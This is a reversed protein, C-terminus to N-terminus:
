PNARKSFATVVKTSKILFDFWKEAVDKNAIKGPHLGDRAIDQTADDFSINPYASTDVYRSLIEQDVHRICHSSTFSWVLKSGILNSTTEILSHNRKWEYFDNADFSLDIFSRHIQKNNNDYQLHPLLAVRTDWDIHLARRAIDPYMLILLDPKIIPIAQYAVMAMADAGYGPLGFNHQEITVGFHQELRKTLVTTWVEHHPLGIGFTISCGLFMIKKATSKTDIEISRYGHSNIDYTIDDVGYAKNGKRDYNEITDAPMWKVTCPGSQYFGLPINHMKWYKTRKSANQVNDNFQIHNQDM